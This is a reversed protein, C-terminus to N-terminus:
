MDVKIMRGQKRSFISVSKVVFNKAAQVAKSVRKNYTSQKAKLAMAKKDTRENLSKKKRFGYQVELRKFSAPKNSM